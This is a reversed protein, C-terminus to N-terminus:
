AKFSHRRCVIKLGQVAHFLFENGFSANEAGWWIGTDGKSDGFRFPWAWNGISRKSFRDDCTSKCFRGCWQQSVQKWCFHKLCTLVVRRMWVQGKMIELFYQFRKRNRRGATALGKSGSINWLSTPLFSPDSQQFLWCGLFKDPLMGGANM